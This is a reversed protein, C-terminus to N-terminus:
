GIISQNRAAEFLPLHSNDMSNINLLQNVLSTIFATKGSRSLGTVALRLTRDLGRNIIQNFEKQISNFM